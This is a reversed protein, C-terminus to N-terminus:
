TGLMAKAARLDTSAFGAPFQAYVRALQQRAQPTDVLRALSVAGRLQWFPAAQQGALDVSAQLCTQAEAINGPQQRLLIEGRARLLEPKYWVAQGRDCRALARDVIALGDAARGLLALAEALDGHFGAFHLSLGISEFADYAGLLLRAAEAYEGHRYQLAGRLGPGLNTWLASGYRGAIDTLLAISTEAAALEGIGLAVPCVAAGLAYCMSANHGIARAHDFAENANQWAKDIEGRLWLVRATATLIQVREDNLIGPVMPQNGAEIYLDRAREIHRQAALQEGGYHMALAMFRNAVIRYSSDTTQEALATYHQAIRRAADQEDNTNRCGFIGRLVRMQAAEDDLSEALRLAEDYAAMCESASQTTELVTVGLAVYLPLLLRPDVRLGSAAYGLAKRVRDRCEVLLSLRLWVPAFGATLAIGLEPDGTPGFAWDIAARADDTLQALRANDEDIQATTSGGGLSVVLDRIFTAHYRSALDTEGCDALKERAYSKITELLRWYGRAPEELAVLSKAVLNAVGTAAPGTGIDPAVADAATLDFRGPFIALRRLLAQEQAPLLEYSWDLVARLTRHRPLATRRGSTLFSFRNDLYADIQALGLVSAHAAAFEIALPIGDLRRCISTIQSLGQQNPEFGADNAKARAVFLQVAGYEHPEESGGNHQPPLDLPPVRVLREGGIRLMERSTALVCTNVCLHAITEALMAAEDIVHECNDLVLLLRRDGIVRAIAHASIDDGGFQLGLTSASMSAVLRRDSLPALEIFAVHGQFVPFLTHALELALATKGVGGPGVLTVIRYASLMELIRQIITARGILDTATMPLNAVFPRILREASAAAPDTASTVPHPTWDGLLQYGVRPTTKLLEQDPGLIRRIASIHVRLATEVVHEHPWVRAIIEDRGVLGGKAEALVELIDFARAGLLVPKGDLRLERRRGDIEWV